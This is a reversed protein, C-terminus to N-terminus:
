RTTKLQLKMTIRLFTPVYFANLIDGFFLLGTFDM